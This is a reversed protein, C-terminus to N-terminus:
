VGALLHGDVWRGFLYEFPIEVDQNEEAGIVAAPVMVVIVLIAFVVRYYM